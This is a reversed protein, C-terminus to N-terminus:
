FHRFVWSVFEQFLEDVVTVATIFLGRQVDLFFGVAAIVILSYIAARVVFVTSRVDVMRVDRQVEEVKKLVFQLESLHNIFKENLERQKAMTLMHAGPFSRKVRVANVLDISHLIYREVRERLNPYEFDTALFKRLEKVAKEYNEELVFTLVNYRLTDAKGLDDRNMKFDTMNSDRKEAGM